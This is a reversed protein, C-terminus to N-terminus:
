SLVSMVTKDELTVSACKKVLVKGDSELGTYSKIPAILYNLSSSM